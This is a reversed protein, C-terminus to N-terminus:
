KNNQFAPVMRAKKDRMKNSALAFMKEELKQIEAMIMPVRDKKYTLAYPLAAKYALIIHYPSAFGPEATTDAATFLHATRQYYVKLGAAVTVSAAAPAPYLFISNGRLAYKVPMGDTECHESLAADIDKEDFHTLKHYNGNADLVEVREVSLLSSFAYDQQGDVLTGTGIPLDTYNSDDFKWNRDLTILDGVVEELAANVRRTKDAVPYSTTDSDCLADIEQCIGLKDTTDNFVM